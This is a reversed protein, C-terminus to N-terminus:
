VWNQKNTPLEGQRSIKKSLIKKQFMPTLIEISQNKTKKNDGRYYKKQFLSFSYGLIIVKSNNTSKPVSYRKKTM